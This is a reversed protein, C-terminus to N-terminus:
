CGEISKEKINLVFKKTFVSDNNRFEVQVDFEDEKEIVFLNSDNEFQRKEVNIKTEVVEQRRSGLKVENQCFINEMNCNLLGIEYKMEGQMEYKIIYIVLTSELSMVKEMSLLEGEPNCVGLIAGINKRDGISIAVSLAPEVFDQNLLNLNEQVVELEKEFQTLETVRNPGGGMSWELYEVIDRCNNVNKVLINGSVAEDQVVGRVNESFWHLFKEFLQKQLQLQELMRLAEKMFRKAAHKVNEIYSSNLNVGRNDCRNRVIVYEILGQLRAVLIMFRECAPIVMLTIIDVGKEYFIGGLTAWRTLNKIGITNRIWEELETSIYGSVLMTILNEMMMEQTAEGKVSTLFENFPTSMNDKIFMIHEKLYKLLHNIRIFHDVLIENGKLQLLDHCDIMRVTLDQYFCIFCNNEGKIIGIARGSTSNSPFPLKLEGNLIFTFSDDVSHHLLHIDLFENKLSEEKKARWTSHPPFYTGPCIKEKDRIIQILTPMYLTIDSDFIDKENDNPFYYRDWIGADVNPKGGNLMALLRSTKIGDYIMVTGRQFFIAVYNGINNEWQYYIIDNKNRIKYNIIISKDATRIVKLGSDSKCLTLPLTPNSKPNEIFSVSSM